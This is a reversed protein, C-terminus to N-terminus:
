FDPVNRSDMNLSQPMAYLFDKYGTVLKVKECKSSIKGSDAGKDLGKVQNTARKEVGTGM